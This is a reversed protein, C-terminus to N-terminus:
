EPTESTEIAAHRASRSGEYFKFALSMGFSKDKQDPSQLLGILANETSEILAKAELDGGTGEAKLIGSGIMGQVLFAQDIEDGDALEKFYETLAKASIASANRETSIFM